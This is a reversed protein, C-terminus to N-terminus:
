DALSNLYARISELDFLRRGRTNGRKRVSISRIRGEEVLEYLSSRSINFLARCTRHDGFEPKSIVEAPQIHQIAVPMAITSNSAAPTRITFPRDPATLHPEQAPM